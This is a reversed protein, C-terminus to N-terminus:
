ETADAVAQALVGDELWNGDWRVGDLAITPTAFGGHSPNALDPNTTAERTASFAWQGFTRAAEGTEIGVAVDEPVGADRALDALAANSHGPTGEAPENEFLVIHFDMAHEPARDAVWAFAAAARTSFQTNQSLRDLIAVPYLVVNATGEAIFMEITQLNLREFHGCAPCMYDFWIGVTPVGEAQPGGAVRDTGIPIGGDPLAGAPVTTVESLPIDQTDVRNAATQQGDRVFLFVVVALVAAVVVGLVGLTILRSRRDAAEQQQKLALAQARAAERREAKSPSKTSSM